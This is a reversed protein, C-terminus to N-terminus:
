SAMRKLANLASDLLSIEQRIMPWSREDEKFRRFHEAKIADELGIAEVLALLQKAEAVPIQIQGPLTM